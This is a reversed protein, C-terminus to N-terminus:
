YLLFRIQSELGGDEPGAPKRFLIGIEQGWLEARSISSSAQQALLVLKSELEM